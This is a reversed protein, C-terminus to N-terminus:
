IENFDKSKSFLKILLNVKKLNLSTKNSQKVVYVHTEANFIKMM